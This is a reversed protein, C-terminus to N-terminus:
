SMNPVLNISLFSFILVYVLVSEVHDVFSFHSYNDAFETTCNAVNLIYKTITVNYITAIVM